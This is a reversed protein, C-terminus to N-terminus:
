AFPAGPALTCYGGGYATIPLTCFRDVIVENQATGRFERHKKITCNRKTMVKMCKKIMRYCVTDRQFPLQLSSCKKCNFHM